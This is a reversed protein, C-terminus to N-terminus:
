GRTTISDALYIAENSRHKAEARVVENADPRDAAKQWLDGRRTCAAACARRETRVATRLAMEIAGALEAAFMPRKRDRLFEEATMRALSAVPLTERHSLTGM